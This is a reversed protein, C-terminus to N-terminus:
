KKGNLRFLSTPTLIYIEENSVHLDIADIETDLNIVEKQKSGSICEIQNSYAKWIGQENAFMANVGEAKYFSQYNGNLSLRHITESKKDLIFMESATVTLEDVAKVKGSISFDDLLNTDLDFRYIRNRNDDAFFVEGLTNVAIQTPSYYSSSGLAKGALISSLYQGRRDFLQVRRNNYDTIFIKLGNTADVDIPKSFQYNGSGKGGLTELVEGKHTLKLLRNKGQEVVYIAHQTVSLSTAEDM